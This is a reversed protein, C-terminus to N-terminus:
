QIITIHVECMHIRHYVQTQRPLTLNTCQCEETIPHIFLNAQVQHHLPVSGLTSQNVILFRLPLHLNHYQFHVKIKFNPHHCSQDHNLSLHILYCQRHAFMISRLHNFYILYHSQVLYYFQVLYHFQLLHITSILHLQLYHCQLHSQQNLFHYNTPAMILYRVEVAM